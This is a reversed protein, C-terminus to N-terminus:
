SEDISGAWSISGYGIFGQQGSIIQNYISYSFQSSL